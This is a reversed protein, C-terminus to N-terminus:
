GSFVRVLWSQCLTGVSFLFYFKMIIGHDITLNGNDEFCGVKRLDYLVIYFGFISINCLYSFTLKIIFFLHNQIARNFVSFRIKKKLNNLSRLLCSFNSHYQCGSLLGMGFNWSKENIEFEMIKGHMSNKKLWKWTKWLRHSGQQGTWFSRVPKATYFSPALALFFTHTNWNPKIETKRGKLVNYTM